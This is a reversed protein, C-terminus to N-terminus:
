TSIGTGFPTLVYDDKCLQAQLGSLDARQQLTAVETQEAQRIVQGHACVWRRLQTESMAQPDHTMWGLLREATGFPLDQPLLCAWEQLGRTTVQGAHAPLGLNGPLLHHGEGPLYCVQRPLYVVGLRSAVKLPDYGDGSTAGAQQQRFSAVLLQDTLRWQEVMLTRMTEWGVATVTNELGDLYHEPTVDNLEVVPMTHHWVETPVEPNDLDDIRAVMLIPQSM